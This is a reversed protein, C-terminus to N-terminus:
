IILEDPELDKLWQLPSLQEQQNAPSIAPSRYGEPLLDQSKHRSKEESLPRKFDSSMKFAPVGSWDPSRLFSPM